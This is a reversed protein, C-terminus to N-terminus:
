LATKTAIPFLDFFTSFDYTDVSNAGYRTHKVFVQSLVVHRAEKDVSDGQVLMIAAMTENHPMGCDQPIANVLKANPYLALLDSLKKGETPPDTMPNAPLHRNLGCRGGVSKFVANEVSLVIAQDNALNFGPKDGGDVTVITDTDSNWANDGDCDVLMNLYFKPTGRVQRASITIEKLDRLPMEDYASLGVIAKNGVNGNPSCATAEQYAGPIQPVHESNNSQISLGDAGLYVQTEYLTNIWVNRPLSQVKGARGQPGVPGQPGEEGVEGRCAPIAIGVFFLLFKWQNKM